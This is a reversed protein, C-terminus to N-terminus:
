AHRMEDSYLVMFIVDEELIVTPFVTELQPPLFYSKLLTIDIPALPVPVRAYGAWIM